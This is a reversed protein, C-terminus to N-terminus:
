NLYHQNPEKLQKLKEQFEDNPFNSLHANILNKLHFKIVDELSCTGDCGIAILGNNSYDQLCEVLDSSHQFVNLDNPNFKGRMGQIEHVPETSYNDRVFNGLDVMNNLEANSRLHAYYIEVLTERANGDGAYRYIIIDTSLFSPNGFYIMGKEEHHKRLSKSIM